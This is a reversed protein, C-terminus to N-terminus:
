KFRVTGFSNYEHFNERTPQWSWTSTGYDYDIRYFNARWETGPAPPVNRLPKLLEFPIFVEATWSSARGNERSIQVAHETTRKGSYHWPIWGLFRSEFNPVLLALEYNLPSIEYEFYVPYREDTWFFVEAVDELYLDAFDERITSSIKLDECRFLVYVGRDSYLMKVETKYSVGAEERRPLSTWAASDWLPNDGKGNVEFHKVRPIELVAEKGVPNSAIRSCSGALILIFFLFLGSIISNRCNRKHTM